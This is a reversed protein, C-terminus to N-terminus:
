ARVPSTTDLSQFKAFQEEVMCVRSQARECKDASRRLGKTADPLIVKAFLDGAKSMRTIQNSISIADRLKDKMKKEAVRIEDPTSCNETEFSIVDLETLAQFLQERLNAM